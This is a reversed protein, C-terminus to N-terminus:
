EMPPPTPKVMAMESMAPIRSPDVLGAFTIRDAVGLRRAQRELSERLIGEGVFLFRAKPFRRLVAPAADLVVDHGKMHFLRAIKGIVPDDPAIGLEARVRERAGDEALFPEVEMGSYITTFRERPAIRAEIFQDTMADAVSIFTDTWRAVLRESGITIANMVGSQAPYFSPGHITHIVVPVSTIRAALRGLVGAKSSHTHVIDPRRRRFSACLKMLTLWDRVPHIERRMEPVIELDIGNGRARRELEGEPGLAPGSILSVEYEPMRHLGQVTLQTNEQAGGLILRTIVHAVCIRRM